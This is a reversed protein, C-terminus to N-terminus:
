PAARARSVVALPGLGRHYHWGLLEWWGRGRTGHACCVGWHSRLMVPMDRGATLVRGSRDFRRSGTKLTWLPPAGAAAVRPMTTM